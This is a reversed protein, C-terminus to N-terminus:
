RATPRMGPPRGGDAATALRSRDPPGASDARGSRPSSWASGPVVVAGGVLVAATVPEDLVLAGLLGGGGPERVRLHRHALDTRAAAALRVGLLRGAIRVVCSTPSGPGPRARSTAGLAFGACSAAPGHRRADPRRRRRADGLHDRRLRRRAHAGPQQAFSGLAWCAAAVVVVLLGWAHVPSGDGALHGGPLVLVRHRRLGVLHRGPDPRRSGTAAGAPPAGGAVAPHRRGAARDIGSPVTQEALAVGGNGCLLLLVGVLAAGRLQRRTM